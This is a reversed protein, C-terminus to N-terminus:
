ITYMSLTAVHIIWPIIALVAPVPIGPLIEDEKALVLINIAIGTLALLMSMAWVYLPFFVFTHASLLSFAVFDGVGVTVSESKIRTYDFPDEGIRGSMTAADAVPSHRTLFLDEVILSVMLVFMTATVMTLGLFIGFISGYFAVFINKLTAPFADMLIMALSLMAVGLSLMSVFGQFINSSGKFLILLFAEGLFVSVFYLIPSVVFAIMLRKATKGRRKMVTFLALVVLVGMTTSIIAQLALDLITYGQANGLLDGIVSTDIVLAAFGSGLLLPLASIAIMVIQMRKIEM